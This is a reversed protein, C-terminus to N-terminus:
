VPCLRLGLQLGFGEVVAEGQTVKLDSGDLGDLQGQLVLLAAAEEQGHRGTGALGLRSDGEDVAEQLGLPEAPGEEQHVAVGKTSLRAVGEHFGAHLRQLGERVNEADLAELVHISIRIGSDVDGGHLGHHRPHQIRVVGGLGRGHVLVIQDDHILAVPAVGQVALEALLLLVEPVEVVVDGFVTADEVV